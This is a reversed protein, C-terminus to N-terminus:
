TPARQVAPPDERAGQRLREWLEDGRGAAVARQARQEDLSLGHQSAYDLLEQRQENQGAVRLFLWCFLGITLLSEEVMMLGGASVQDALSSVHWHADGVRYYPYFVTGGFVMINGLVTGILRVAVVYVLRAGNSFWAPKPLPGLLGMWVAIGFALFTAHELAHLAPHRLAAQYLAPAHWIYFNVGWVVIAAVPHSLGKLKAVIPNRLLPAMMPGTLGLVLLLAAIDGILLHEAMHAVLLQDALTDVPPSLAVELVVLGAAFCVQRSRAVPRGHRALTRGRVRYPLWCLAVLIPLGITQVPAAALLTM